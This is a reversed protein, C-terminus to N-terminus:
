HATARPAFGLAEGLQDLNDFWQILAHDAAASPGPRLGAHAECVAYYINQVGWLSVAFPFSPVLEVGDSLRNLTEKSFPEDRWAEAATELKKQYAYALEEGRLAFHGDQSEQLLQSIKMPDPTDSQLARLLQHNLAREGAVRLADPQPLGLGALFKMVAVNATYVEVYAEEAHQVAKELVRDLYRRQEDSFLTRLSFTNAGFQQSFLGILKTLDMQELATAIDEVLEDFSDANDM